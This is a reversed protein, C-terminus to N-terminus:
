DGVSRIWTPMEKMKAAEGGDQRKPMGGIPDVDADSEDGDGRQPDIDGIDGKTSKM